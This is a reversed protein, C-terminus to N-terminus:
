GFLTPGPDRTAQGVRENADAMLSRPAFVRALGAAALREIAAGRVAWHRAENADLLLLPGAGPARWLVLARRWQGRLFISLWSGARWTGAVGGPDPEADGGRRLPAPRSDGGGADLAQPLSTSHGDNDAERVRVGLLTIDRAAATVARAFRQRELVALRNAASQFPRSDASHQAVLQEILGQAFAVNAQPDGVERTQMLFGLHDMFRWVPHGADALLSADLLTQRLVAPYL